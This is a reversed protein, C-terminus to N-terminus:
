YATKELLQRHTPLALAGAIIPPCRHLREAGNTLAADHGTRIVIMNKDRISRERAELSADSLLFGVDSPRALRAILHPATSMGVIALM